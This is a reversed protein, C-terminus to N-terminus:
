RSAASSPSPTVTNINADTSAASVSVTEHVAGIPLEFHLVPSTGSAFTLPQQLTAFGRQTITIIYNGLPVAPISFAGDAATATTFALSSSSSRLDIHVGAIPRHQSDHVVGHVQAFITARAPASSLLSLFFFLALKRM